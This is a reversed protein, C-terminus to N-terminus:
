LYIKGLTGLKKNEDKKPHTYKKCVLNNKYKTLKIFFM